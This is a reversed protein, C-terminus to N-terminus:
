ASKRVEPWHLQCGPILTQGSFLKAMNSFQYNLIEFLVRLKAAATKTNRTGFKSEELAGVCEAAKLALTYIEKSSPIVAGSHDPCFFPILYEHNAKLPSHRDDVATHLQDLTKKIDGALDDVTIDFGVEKQSSHRRDLM